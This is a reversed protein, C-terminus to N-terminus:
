DRSWPRDGAEAAPAPHARSSSISDVLWSRIGLFTLLLFLLGSVFVSGLQEWGIGLAALGFALFANEGMYPAVALPRGAYIGM